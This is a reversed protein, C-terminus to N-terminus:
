FISSNLLYPDVDYDFNFPIVNLKKRFYVRHFREVIDVVPFSFFNSNYLIGTM